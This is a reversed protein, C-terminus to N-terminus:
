VVAASYCLLNTACFCQLMTDTYWLPSRHGLLTTVCDCHRQFVTASCCLILTDCSSSCYMFVSPSCCQLVKDTCWVLVAVLKVSVCHLLVADCFRLLMLLEWSCRLMAFLARYSFSIMCCVLSAAHLCLLKYCLWVAAYWYLMLCPLLTLYSCYVVCYYSLITTSCCLLWLLATFFPLLASGCYYVTFCCYLWVITCYSLSVTELVGVWLWLLGFAHCYFVFFRGWCPVICCYPYM